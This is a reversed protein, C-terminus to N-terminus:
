LPRDPGHLAIRRRIEEASLGEVVVTKDRSAHGSAIRVAGRAVNLARALVAEVEDNARGKEPPAAVAVRLAGAHEGDLASRTSGPRVRLRLRAGEKSNTIVLKSLDGRSSPM